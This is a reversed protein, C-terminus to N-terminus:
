KVDATNASFNAKVNKPDNADRSREIVLWGGWGMEDLTEKVKKLDIAKDNQLWYGDSNSCHIQCINAAGLIRLEKYLDRKADLANAFNFYIRIAPSGVDKLLQRDGKADLSTEIGIIVGAAEAMKGIVKLREVIVPRLEPHRSLDANVGLPLFAIKVGMQQMTKICDGVMRQYTPRTAFSQAYFGTMALSTIELHQEKAKALFQLRISDIALQNDFTERDGLGGMDVELGDAGVTKALPFAGLKQRKLIMLDVVGVKYTQRQEKFLKEVNDFGKIADAPLREGHDGFVYLAAEPEVTCKSEDINGQKDLVASLNLGLYKAMFPYMAKRKSPGYDHGEDKLHVNEVKDESGYYGYIKKLYPFDHQPMHATWDNGDSILLQPRPAAMAALEVNDTGGACDHVPM